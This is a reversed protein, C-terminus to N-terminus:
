RPKEKRKIMDLYKNFRRTRTEEKKATELAFAILFKTPKTLTDFFESADPDKRVEAIFDDPIEMESEPLYAKDWRGDNKALEVHRIGPQRMLGRKELDAVNECNRKSWISKEKRPTIRQLFSKDDYSMRKGDIWGWCLVALVVDEWTVSKIKSAKKYIRIWQETHKDHNKALWDYLNEFSEFEEFSIKDKDTSNM